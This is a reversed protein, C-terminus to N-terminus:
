SVSNLKEKMGWEQVEAWNQRTIQLNTPTTKASSLMKAKNTTSKLFRELQRNFDVSSDRLHKLPLCFLLAWIPIQLFVFALIHAEEVGYKGICIDGAKCHPWIEYHYLLNTTTFSIWALDSTLILAAIVATIQACGHALKVNAQNRLTQITPRARSLDHGLQLAYWLAIVSYPTAWWRPSVCM